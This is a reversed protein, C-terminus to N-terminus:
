LLPRSAHPFPMYQRGTGIIVPAICATFFAHVTTTVPPAIGSASGTESDFSIWDPKNSMFFTQKKGSLSSETIIAMLDVSYLTNARVITPIAMANDTNVIEIFTPVTELTITFPGITSLTPAILIDLLGAVPATLAKNRYNRKHVLRDEEMEWTQCHQTNSIIPHYDGADADKIVHTWPVNKWWREGYGEVYTDEDEDGFTTKARSCKDIDEAFANHNSYIVKPIVEKKCTEAAHHWHIPSVFSRLIPQSEPWPQPDINYYETVGTKPRRISKCSAHGTKYPTGVAEFFGDTVGAIIEHRSEDHIRLNERPDGHPDEPAVNKKTKLISDATKLEFDPFPLTSWANDAVKKDDISVNEFVNVVLPDGVRCIDATRDKSPKPIVHMNKSPAEARIEPGDRYCMAHRDRLSEPVFPTTLRFGRSAARQNYADANQGKLKGGENFPIDSGAGPSTARYGNTGFTAYQYACCVGFESKAGAPWLPTGPTRHQDLYWRNHYARSENNFSNGTVTGNKTICNGGPVSGLPVGDDVKQRDCEVDGALIGWDAGRYALAAKDNIDAARFFTGLFSQNTPLTQGRVFRNRLSANLQARGDETIIQSETCLDCTALGCNSLLAQFCM